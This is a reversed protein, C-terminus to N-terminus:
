TRLVRWPPVKANSLLLLDIEQIRRKRLSHSLVFLLRLEIITSVSDTIHDHMIIKMMELQMQFIQQSERM